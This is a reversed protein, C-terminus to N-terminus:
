IELPAHTSPLLSGIPLLHSSSSSDKKARQLPAHKERRATEVTGTENQRTPQHITPSHIPRSSPLPALDHAQKGQQYRYQGYPIRQYLVTTVSYSTLSALNALHHQTPNHHM